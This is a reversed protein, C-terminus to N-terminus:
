RLLILRKISTFAAGGTVPQVTIRYFYVGAGMRSGEASDGSWVVEHRGAPREEDVLTEVLRGAVNYLTLRVRGAEPLDFGIETSAAFPNPQNQFLGYVAPVSAESVSPSALAAAPATGGGTTHIVISGGGLATTPDTEDVAGMQNDYVLAGSIRDTIKIRIMDAQGRGRLDGDTATLMFGYDGAGNITGRGKYQAKSGSIVLWDYSASHFNLDAVKFQFETEGTPVSKGKQYKSVFGFNAKGALAPDPAYAGLPSSIWGGGTVFGANPDYVVVMADLGGITNTTASDGCQDTVTLSVLYVGAVTFTYDASVTGRDEDV